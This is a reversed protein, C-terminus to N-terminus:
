FLPQEVSSTAETPSGELIGPLTPEMHPSSFLDTTRVFASTGFAYIGGRWQGASADRYRYQLERLRPGFQQRVEDYKAHAHSNWVMESCYAACAAPFLVASALIDAIQLVVHSDSHGFVPVECFRPLPDGGSRFIQTTIVDSNPTNKVKTRSDLVVLGPQSREELYSHFTRCIWGISAGYVARDDLPVDKTKVLVRAVVRCQQRSLLAMTEQIIKLARRKANRNGTRLDARLDAGKIETRIVDSLQIGPRALSTNFTKKLQLFEWIVDKLHGDPVIVGAIVLIPTSAPTSECLLDASGAEDVYCIDV